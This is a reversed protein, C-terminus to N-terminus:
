LGPLPLAFVIIHWVNETIVYILLLWTAAAQEEIFSPAVSFDEGNQSIKKLKVVTVFKILILAKNHFSSILRLDRRSFKHVFFHRM